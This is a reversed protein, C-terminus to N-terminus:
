RDGAFMKVKQAVYSCSIENKQIVCLEHRDREFPQMNEYLLVIWSSRSYLFMFLEHRDVAYFCREAIFLRLMAKAMCSELDPRQLEFSQTANRFM